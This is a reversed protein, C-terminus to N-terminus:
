SGAHKRRVGFGLVGSVTFTIPGTCGKARFKTTGTPEM